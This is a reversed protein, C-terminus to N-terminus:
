KKSKWMKEPTLFLWGPVGSVSLDYDEFVGEGPPFVRLTWVGGAAKRFTLDNMDGLTEERRVTQGSPDVVELGITERPEGYHRFSVDAGPPVDVFLEGTRDRLRGAAKRSPGVFNVFSTTVDFALPVDTALVAVGNGGPALSLRYFGKAPVKFSVDAGEPDAPMKVGKPDLPTREGLRCVCVPRRPATYDRKGILTQQLKFHVERAGDAYFVPGANASRFFPPRSIEAMRGPCADVIEVRGLDAPVRPVPMETVVDYPCNEANWKEDFVLEETRGAVVAKITGRLVSPRGKYPKTPKSVNIVAGTQPRIVTVNEFTYSDPEFVSHATVALKVDPEKVNQLCSNEIVTDQVTLSGQSCPVHRFVLGENRADAFRCRRIVVTGHDMPEDPGLANQGSAFVFSQSNSVAVCDEFLADLHESTRDLKALALLFGCGANGVSRCRRMAVGSIAEHAHNPEFDIGAEPATGFTNSLLTDEVVFGRSGIVSIGQRNNRDFICNRVVVNACSEGCRGSTSVYLGDGGSENSSIGELTVNACSLFSLGHRWESWRYGHANPTKKDRTYYDDHWMRFGCREPSPGRIVVNTCCDFTLLVHGQGKFEGRKAVIHAGDEFVITLDSRGTVRLPRAYWDRAQRDVILTREGSDLATQLFRTSDVPDYGFRQSVRVADAGRGCTASLIALLAVTKAANM